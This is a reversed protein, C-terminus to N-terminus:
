THNNSQLRLFEQYEEDSILQSDIRGNSPTDSSSINITKNPWGILDYCRNELPGEKGCHRCILRGRGGKGNRLIGRTGRGSRGRGRSAVMASNEVAIGDGKTITPVRLLRTILSYISFRSVQYSKIGFMNMTLICVKLEEVVARSTCCWIMIPRNFSFLRKLQILCINFMM